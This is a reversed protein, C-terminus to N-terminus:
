KRQGGLTAKFNLNFIPMVWWPCPGRAFLVVAQGIKDCHEHRVEEISAGTTFVDDVLLTHLEPDAECYPKLAKAFKLGGRPVGMVDHFRIGMSHVLKAMCDWDEDTLSDCDIKWQLDLGAHSKFSKWKFM